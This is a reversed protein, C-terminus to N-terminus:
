GSSLALCHAASLPPLQKTNITQMAAVLLNQSFLQHPPAPFDLVETKSALRLRRNRFDLVERWVWMQTWDDSKRKQSRRLVGYSGGLMREISSERELEGDTAFTCSGGKTEDFVLLDDLLEGERHRVKEEELM